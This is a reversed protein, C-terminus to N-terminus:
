NIGKNRRINPVKVNKITLHNFKVNENEFQRKNLGNNGRAADKRLKGMERRM